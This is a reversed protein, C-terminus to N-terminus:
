WLERSVLIEYVNESECAQIHVVDEEDIMFAYGTGAQDDNLGKEWEIDGKPSVPIEGLYGEDVLISLDLCYDDDFIEIDSFENQDDCGRIKPGSVIMYWDERYLGDIEKFLPAEENDKQYEKLSRTLNAVDSWREADRASKLKRIPDFIYFLLGTIVAIILVGVLIGIFNFSKTKKQNEM